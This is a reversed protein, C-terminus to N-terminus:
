NGARIKDIEVLATRLRNTYSYKSRISRERGADAIQQRASEHNLYFKAKDLLEDESDFFEAEKGETFFDCHENTRDALLMSGCAPIEFTRTTHQDPWAKRLFGLGIRSGTLAHAYDDGYVEDGQFCRALLEDRRICFRDKGALQKLIIKRRLTKRGDILFDWYGGWINLKAATKAVSRLLQERRPEWGGLFGFDCCWRSNGSRLPRHVEDCYGLAMYVLPRGLKEYDTREYVKCYVLVDFAGMAEDMLATRKWPLSFYPDPTFHVLTAGLSRLEEITSRRLYEQKEAWLLNPRFNRAATLVSNNIKNIIPGYQLRRQVQRSLWLSRTWPEVTHVGIVQHGLRQLARMRMLSTQGPGIEGLFLVRM